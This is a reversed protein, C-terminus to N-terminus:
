SWVVRSAAGIASTAHIVTGVPLFAARSIPETDFHSTEYRGEGLDAFTMVAHDPM